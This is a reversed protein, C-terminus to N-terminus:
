YALLTHTDKLIGIIHKEKLCLVWDLEKNKDWHTPLKTPSQIIEFEMENSKLLTLSPLYVVEPLLRM